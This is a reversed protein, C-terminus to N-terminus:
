VSRQVAAKFSLIGNNIIKNEAHRECAYSGILWLRALGERLGPGCAGADCLHRPVRRAHTHGGRGRSGAAHGAACRLVAGMLQCAIARVDCCTHASPICFSVASTLATQTRSPRRVHPIGSFSTAASALPMGQLQDGLRLMSLNLDSAAAIAADDTEFDTVDTGSAPMSLTQWSAFARYPADGTM